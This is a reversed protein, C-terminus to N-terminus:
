DLRASEFKVGFLDFDMRHANQKEGKIFKVVIGQLDSQVGAMFTDESLPHLDFFIPDRTAGEIIMTLRDDVIGVDATQEVVNLVRAVYEGTFPELSETPLEIVKDKLLITGIRGTLIEMPANLNNSLLIISIGFRPMPVFAARYGYGRGYACGHSFANLSLNSSNEPVWKYLDEVTTFLHGCGVFHSLHIEPFPQNEEYGTAINRSKHDFSAFSDKMGAPSFIMEMMYENFTKKSTKEVLYALLQYGSNSYDVQSGPKFELPHAKIKKILNEWSIPKACDGPDWPLDNFLDTIGSKHFLLHSVKIRDGQPFDPIFKSLTDELSLAGRDIEKAVAAMTFLKSVSGMSFVTSPTNPIKKDQDAFGYGKKLIVKGNLSVLAAGSFRGEDAHQTLLAHIQESYPSVTEPESCCSAILFLIPFLLARHM